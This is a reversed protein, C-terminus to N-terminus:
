CAFSMWVLDYYKIEKRSGLLMLTMTLVQRLLLHSVISLSWTLDKSDIKILHGLSYQKFNSMHTKNEGIEGVITDIVELGKGCLNLKCYVCINKYFIYDKLVLEFQLIYVSIFVLSCSCFECLDCVQFDEFFHVVLNQSTIEYIM